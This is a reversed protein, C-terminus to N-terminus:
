MLFMDNMTINSQFVDHSDIILKFLEFYYVKTKGIIRLILLNEGLYISVWGFVKIVFM